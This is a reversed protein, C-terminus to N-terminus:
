QPVTSLTFSMDVPEGAQDYVPEPVSGDRTISIATSGFMHPRNTWGWPHQIEDLRARYVAVVSFWYTQGLNEQRFWADEPLRVSYRFVSENPQGEPNRDYGVLVEDYDYALYEWVLEGPNGDQASVNTPMRLSLIFYDPRRPEEVQDCNYAEYGYGIYSGQWSIAVVPDIRECLWDDAVRREVQINGVEDDIAFSVQDESYPWDRLGMFSQDWKGWPHETLLEFCMDYAQNWGCLLSNEIPYIRGPFLREDYTPWEGMIAPMVAGNGWLHPRTIWGWLNKAEVDAPYIATISIWFIDENSEYAVQHFWEEPELLVEYLFCMDPQKQPFEIHGVPEFHIREAPIELSWVMREPFVERQDIGEIQNAWFGIHWAIPQSEPPEPSTWAKYGGWWRIRTVPIPGIRRFDDADMRWQRRNGIQETSRAPESWGCFVPPMDVNPEIEIPPRSWILFPPIDNPENPEGPESPENPEIPKNPEIPIDPDNPEPPGNPNGPVSGAVSGTDSASYATFDQGQEDTAARVWYYYTMDPQVNLDTFTVTIQWASIATRTGSLSDSRSVQYYSTYLPGNCLADWTIRVRDAYTGDSVSLGTPPKSNPTYELVTLSSNNAAIAALDTCYANNNLSNQQLWLTALNTLSTLASVDVIQNEHLWLRELASLSSLDNIDTIQNRGVDLAVLSNLGSLSSLDMIQNDSLYLRTLNTLGSLANVDTIQNQTLDLYTLNTMNSLASIDSIQNNGPDLEQLSTLGSLPSLDSIRNSYIGLWLLNILGSLESIDAIQNSRLDLTNLNTAYELGTIDAIGLSMADLRYLSLMDSPTPDTVSLATEVANELNPDAFIVPLHNNPDSPSNPENPENSDGAINTLRLVIVDDDTGNHAQGAVVIKGDTQLTLGYGWETNGTPDYQYVGNTGFTTDLIGNPDYKLVVVSWDSIAGISNGSHGAILITDDSQVMLDYCEEHTGGDYLVIGNNGFSMDLNGNSDFCIVPIDYDTIDQDPKTLHGTVLINGNSNTDIGYGRDYDGGDYLVIGNTGFSTDLTGNISFRAVLIDNDSGNHSNGTVLIKGDNQVTLRSGSDHGNGGDYIAVGNTGFTTDPVGNANLRMVLLDSDTGNNCSGCIVIKGDSQILLDIAAENGSDFTFIGNSGFNPDLTGDSDLRLVIVDDDTSNLSDGAVLIKNDSQVAIAYAGDNGNGGDYLYAGNTGFGADLTGDRNYRIVMLDNDTGNTMYGSVLIKGDQQLAIDRGRDYGSGGDWLVNGDPSHFTTDLVGESAWVSMSMLFCSSWLFTVKLLKM